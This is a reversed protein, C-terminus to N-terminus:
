VVVVVVSIVTGVMGVNVVKDVKVVRVVKATVSGARFFRSAVGLETIASVTIENEPSIDLM